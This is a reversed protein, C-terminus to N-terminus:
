TSSLLPHTYAGAPSIVQWKGMNALGRLVPDLARLM